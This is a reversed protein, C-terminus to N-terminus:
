LVLRFFLLDFTHTLSHTLNLLHTHTHRDKNRAFSSFFFDSYRAAVDLTQLIFPLSFSFFSYPPPSFLVLLCVFLCVHLRIFSDFNTSWRERERERDIIKQRTLFFLSRDTRYKTLNANLQLNNGFRNPFLLIM